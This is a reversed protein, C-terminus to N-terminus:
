GSNLDPTPTWGVQFNWHPGRRTRSLKVVGDGSLFNVFIWNQLITAWSLVFSSNLFAKFYKCRTAWFMTGGGIFPHFYIFWRGVPCRGFCFTGGGWFSTGATDYWIAIEHWLTIQMFFIAGNIFADGYVYILYWMLYPSCIHRKHRLFIAGEWACDM